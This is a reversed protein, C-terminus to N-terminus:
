AWQPREPPPTIHSNLRSNARAHEPRNNGLASVNVNMPMADVHGLHCACYDDLHTGPQTPGNGDTPTGKTDHECAVLPSIQCDVDSGAWVSQLPLILMMLLLLFRKMPALKCIM